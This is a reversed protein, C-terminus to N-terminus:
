HVTDDSQKRLPHEHYTVTGEIATAGHRQLLGEVGGVRNDPVVVALRPQELDPAQMATGIIGGIFGGAAVGVGFGLVTLMHRGATMIPSIRPIWFVDQDMAFLLVAGMLGGLLGGILLGQSEPMRTSPDFFPNDVDPEEPELDSEQLADEAGTMAEADEFQAVIRRM